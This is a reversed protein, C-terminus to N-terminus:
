VDTLSPPADPAAETLVQMRLWEGPKRTASCKLEAVCESSSMVTQPRAAVSAPAAAVSAPFLLFHTQNELDTRESWYYSGLFPM